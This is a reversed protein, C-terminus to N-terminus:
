AARRRQAESRRSEGARRVQTGRYSTLILGVGLGLAIADIGFVAGSLDWGFAHDLSYRGPGVFALAAAVAANTLPFEFGGNSNWVGNSLHVAVTANLMMGIIAAAGLPTFLGLVLLSGGGAEAAGALVAMPKGPRYGMKELGAGFKEPGPGSFWGFLKQTGHGIFLGGVVVRLILLGVDM